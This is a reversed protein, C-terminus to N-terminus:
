ASASLFVPSIQAVSMSSAQFTEVDTSIKEACYDDMGYQGVKLKGTTSLYLDSVQYLATYVRLGHLVKCDRGDMTRVISFLQVRQAAHLCVVSWNGM